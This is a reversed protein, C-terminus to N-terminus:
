NDQVIQFLDALIFGVTLYIGIQVSIIIFLPGTM